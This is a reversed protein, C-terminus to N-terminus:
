LSVKENVRIGCVMIFTLKAAISISWYTVSIVFTIDEKSSSPSKVVQHFNICMLPVDLAVASLLLPSFVKDALAVTECLKLHEQRLSGINLGNGIETSVKKELKAFMLVLVECSVYFLTFPLIWSFINFAAFVLHIIRYVILGNWPCFRAVSSHRYFDILAVCTTNFACFVCVFALVFNMRFKKMGSLNFSVALFNEFLTGLRSPKKPRKPLIFLCITTVLASQLYWFSFILLFYFTRLQALGECFLSTLSQVVVFWQGLVVVACYVRSLISSHLVFEHFSVDGYCEGTLKMLRLVPLFTYSLERRRLDRGDKRECSEKLRTDSELDAISLVEVSDAHIGQLQLNYAQSM